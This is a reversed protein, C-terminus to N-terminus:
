ACIQCIFFVIVPQYVKGKSNHTRNFFTKICYIAGPVCRILTQATACIMDQENKAFNQHVSRGDRETPDRIGASGPLFFGSSLLMLCRRFGQQITLASLNGQEDYKTISYHSLLEVAWQTLGALGQPLKSYIPLLTKTFFGM